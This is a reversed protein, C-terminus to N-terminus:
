TEERLEPDLGRPDGGAIGLESKLVEVAALGAKESAEVKGQALHSGEATAVRAWM